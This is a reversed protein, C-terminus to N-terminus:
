AQGAPITAAAFSGTNERRFSGRGNFKASNIADDNDSDWYTLGIEKLKSGAIETGGLFTNLTDFDTKVPVEWGEAAIDRADTAAFWNYLAGYGYDYEIVAPVEAVYDGKVTLLVRRTSKDFTGIVDYPNDFEPKKFLPAVDAIDSISEEKGGQSMMMKHNLHDYWYLAAGSDVISRTFKTGSMESIYQYYELVSGVGLILQTGNPDNLVKRDNFSFIGFAKDQWFMVQNRFVHLKSLAGNASNVRITNNFLFKTWSDVLEGSISRESSTAVCDNVEVNNFNFPKAVYIKGTPQKSYVPNYLYLDTLNSPYAGFTNGEPWVQFGKEVTEQLKSSTAAFTNKSPCVDHRLALNISTEVPLYIASKHKYEDPDASNAESDLMTQLFDYCEIFTDGGYVYSDVFSDNCRRLKGALIYSTNQKAIYNFGGYQTVLDRVYNVIAHNTIGLVTDSTLGLALNSGVYCTKDDASFGYNCIRTSSGAM